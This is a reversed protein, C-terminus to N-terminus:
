RALAESFFLMSDFPPRRVLEEDRAVWMFMIKMKAVMRSIEEQGAVWFILSIGVVEM